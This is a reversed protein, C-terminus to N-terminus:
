RAGLAGGEGHWQPHGMRKAAGDRFPHSLVVGAWPTKYSPTLKSM